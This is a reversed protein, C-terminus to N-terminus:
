SRFQFARGWPLLEASTPRGFLYGQGLHCGMERLMMAQDIDEVGEAVVTLGLKSGVTVIADVLAADRANVAMEAVFVRDIKLKDVPFSRLYALSSYGTGFDDIAITAGLARLRGLTRIADTSQELVIHETIEIEIYSAPLGYRDLAREVSSLIVGRRVQEPSVNIAIPQPNGEHLWRAAEKVAADLVFEGLPVILQSDEAARILREISHGFTPFRVLAEAGMMAGTRLDIEPQFALHLQRMALGRRLQVEDERLDAISSQMTSRYLLISGRLSKKGMATAIEASRIVKSSSRGHMPALAVGITSALELASREIEIEESITKAIREALALADEVKDVHEALILFQAGGVAAVTMGDCASALRHSVMLLAEDGVDRGHLDNVRGFRDVDVFLVAATAGEALIEDIRAAIFARTPATQRPPTPDTARALSTGGAIWRCQVIVGRLREDDLCSLSRAEVIQWDSVGSALHLHLRQSQGLADARLLSTAAPRDGPEFLQQWHTGILDSETSTSFAKRCAPSAYSIYGDPDVVFVLGVLHDLVASAL